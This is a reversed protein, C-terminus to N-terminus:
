GGSAGGGGSNVIEYAFMGGYGPLYYGYSDDSRYDGSAYDYFALPLGSPSTTTVGQGATELLVTAGQSYTQVQNPENLSVSGMKTVSDMYYGGEWNDRYWITNPWGTNPMPNPPAVVRNVGWWNIVPSAGGDWKYNYYITSPQALLTPCLGFGLIVLVALLIAIRATKVTSGM